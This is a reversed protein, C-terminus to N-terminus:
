TSMITEPTEPPRKRHHKKRKNRKKRDRDKHDREKNDKEKSDREKTDREKIDREKIDKERTDKKIAEPIAEKTPTPAAANEINTPSKPSPKPSKIAPVPSAILRKRKANVAPMDVVTVPSRLGPPTFNVFDKHAPQLEYGGMRMEDLQGPTFNVQKRSNDAPNHMSSITMVTKFSTSQSNDSEAPAKAPNQTSQAVEVDPSASSKYSDTYILILLSAGSLSGSIICSAAFGWRWYEQVQNMPEANVATFILVLIILATYYTLCFKIVQKASFLSSTSPQKSAESEM